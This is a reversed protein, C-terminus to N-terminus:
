YASLSVMIMFTRVRDAHVNFVSIAEPNARFTPVEGLGLLGFSAKMM